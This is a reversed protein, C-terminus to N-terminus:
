VEVGGIGMMRPPPGGGGGGSQGLYFTVVNTYTIVYEYQMQQTNWNLTYIQVQLRWWDGSPAFGVSCYNTQIIDSLFELNGLYKQTHTDYDTINIYFHPQDPYSEEYVKIKLTTNTGHQVPTTASDEISSASFTDACPTMFEATDDHIYEAGVWVWAEVRWKWHRTPQAQNFLDITRVTPQLYMVADTQIILSGTQGDYVRFFVSLGYQLTEFQIDVNLTTGSPCPCPQFYCTDIKVWAPLAYTPRINQIATVMGLLLLLGAFLAITKNRLKKM